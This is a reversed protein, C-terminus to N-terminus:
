FLTSEIDVPNTPLSPTSPAIPRQAIVGPLGNRQKIALEVKQWDVNAPEGAMRIIADRLNPMDIPRPPQYDAIDDAQEQTPAIELWLQQEHWALKYDIDVVTVPTGEKVEAFLVSIDEPYLRICGHSARVGVGAPRNTGHILYSGTGWGLNMAYEGLPNDPGPPIEFPLSPKAVFISAPPIWTPNKRKKAIHTKGTPTRWGEKGIGIPFTMVTHADKFYFLRLDALNILIGRREGPPLIHLHPIQLTSNEVPAWPDVGPNAALLEVIGVNFRRALAYFNDDAQVTYAQAIGIVDGNLPYTEANLSHNFALLLGTVIWISIPFKRRLRQTM